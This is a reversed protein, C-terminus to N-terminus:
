VVARGIECVFQCVTQPPNQHYLAFLAGCLIAAWVEGFRKIGNLVVGRFLIEECVAPILAVVFLTGVFGFGNMNPLRIEEPTYGFQELFGLFLTNLESFSFLGIQFLLAIVFYRWPCKQKQVASSLSINTYRLVFFTTLAFCLQPLLFNFYIFWDQAAYDGQMFGCAFFIAVAIFAFVSPLLAALSYALGSAKALTPTGFLKHSLPQRTTKKSKMSENYWIKTRKCVFFRALACKKTM